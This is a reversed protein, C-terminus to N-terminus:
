YYKFIFMSIESVRFILEKGIGAKNLSKILKPCQNSFSFHERREESYGLRKM